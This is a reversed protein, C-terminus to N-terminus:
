NLWLLTGSIGLYLAPLPEIDPDVFSHRAKESEFQDLFGADAKSVATISHSAIPSNM